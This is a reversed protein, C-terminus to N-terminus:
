PLYYRILAEGIALIGILALIWPWLANFYFLIALGILFVGGMIGHLAKKRSEERNNNSQGM